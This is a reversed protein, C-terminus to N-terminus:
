IAQIEVGDKTDKIIYGKESILDRLRDSEAWNKESRAIKRQEVLDLIEQPIEEEKKEDIKIGLVTDFKELLKAIKPSKEPYKIAEWVVSMALPMNLDDNIAQHFRNEMDNIIQEIDM